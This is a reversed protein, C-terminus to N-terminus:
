QEFSKKLVVPLIASLWLTYYTFGKEVLLSKFQGYFITFELISAVETKRWKHQAQRLIPWRDTLAIFIIDIAVNCIIM